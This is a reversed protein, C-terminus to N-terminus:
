WVVEFPARNNTIDSGLLLTNTVDDLDSAQTTELLAQLIDLHVSNNVHDFEKGRRVTRLGDEQVSQTVDTSNM